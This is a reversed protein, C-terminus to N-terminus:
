IKKSKKKANKDPVINSLQMYKEVSELMITIEEDKILLDTFDLHADNYDKFNQQILNIDVFNDLELSYKLSLLQEYKEENMENIIIKKGVEKFVNKILNISLNNNVIKYDEISHIIEMLNTNNFIEEYKYVQTNIRENFIKEELLITPCIKWLENVIYKKDQETFICDVTGNNNKEEYNFNQFITSFYSTVYTHNIKDKDRLALDYIEKIGQCLTKINFHEKIFKSQAKIDSIGKENTQAKIIEQQILLAYLQPTNEALKVLKLYEEKNNKFNTVLFSIPNNDQSVFFNEKLSNFIDYVEQANYYISIINTTFSNKFYCLSPHTFIENSFEKLAIKKILEQKESDIMSILTIPQFDKNKLKSYILHIEKDTYSLFNTTFFDSSNINSKLLNLFNDNDCLNELKNFPLSKLFEKLVNQYFTTHIWHDLYKIEKFDENKISQNLINKVYGLSIINKLDVQKEVNERFNENDGKLLPLQEILQKLHKYNEDDKETIIDYFMPFENKEAYNLVKGNNIYRDKHLTIYEKLFPKFSKHHILTNLEEDDIILRNKIVFKDFGINEQLLIYIVQSSISSVNKVNEYAFINHSYNQTLNTITQNNQKEVLPYPINYKAFIESIIKENNSELKETITKILQRYFEKKDYSGTNDKLIFYLLNINPNNQIYDQFSKEKLMLWLWQRDKNLFNYTINESNFYKKYINSCYHYIEEKYETSGRSNEINIWTFATEYPLNDIARLDKGYMQFYNRMIISAGNKLNMQHINDENLDIKPYQTFIQSLFKKDLLKEFIEEPMDVFTLLKYISINKDKAYKLWIEKIKEKNDIIVEESIDNFYYSNYELIFNEETIIEKVGNFNNLFSYTLNPVNESYVFYSKLTNKLLQNCFLKDEKKFPYKVFNELFLENGNMENIKIINDKYIQAFDEDKLWEMQPQINFQAIFNLSFNKYEEKTMDNLSYEIINNIYPVKNKSLEILKEGYTNIQEVSLEMLPISLNNELYHKLESETLHGEYINTNGDLTFLRRIKAKDKEELDYNEILFKISYPTCNEILDKKNPFIKYKKLYYFIYGKTEKIKLYLKETDKVINELIEKNNLTDINM